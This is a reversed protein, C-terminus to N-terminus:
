GCRTPTASQASVAEPADSADTEDPVWVADLEGAALLRVLTRADLRDTKARARGVAAGHPSVVIVGAAHPEIIRAIVAANGTADLAVRDTPALSQGFLALVAPTTLM